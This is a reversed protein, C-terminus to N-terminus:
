KVFFFQKLNINKLLKLSEFHTMDIHIPTVSIVKEDFVANCDSGPIDEHILPDGGIWYYLKGRPDKTEYVEKSYARRGVVTVKYGRKKIKEPINVNLFVGRPLFQPNKLLMLVLEYSFESGININTDSFAELSISIAPVDLLVAELAAAVTGSYTLDDALNFGNNIGSVVLDVKVDKLLYSLTLYVCDAPTGDVSFVNKQTNLNHRVVRLPRDFTLAHSSGSQDRDPAVVWIEGLEKLADALKLLGASNLGDDNTLLITKKM